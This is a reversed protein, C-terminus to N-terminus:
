LKPFDLYGAYQDLSVIPTCPALKHKYLVENDIRDYREVKCLSAGRARTEIEKTESM